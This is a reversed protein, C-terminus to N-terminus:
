KGGKFLHMDEIIEYMEMARTMRDLSAARRASLYPRLASLMGRRAPHHMRSGSHTLLSTPVADSADSAEENSSASGVNEPMEENKGGGLVGALMDRASPNEMVRALMESFDPLGAM